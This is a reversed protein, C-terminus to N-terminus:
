YIIQNYEHKQNGLAPASLLGALTFMINLAKLNYISLNVDMTQIYMYGHM